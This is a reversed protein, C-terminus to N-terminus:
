AKVGCLIEYAITGAIRAHDDATVGDGLLVVEDGVRVGEVETVDVTTLNMSVRGVIATRRDGVMVWGGACEDTGALERRLGDAYGVPLLAVRMPRKATFTANYGIAEGEAVERVDLVRTKWTMVPRLRGRIKSGAGVPELAYGYLAIGSRVMARAGASTALGELWAADAGVDVSSSSGAHVWRPAFGRSGPHGVDRLSTPHFRRVQDIGAEFQRKQDRTRESGAVEASSFHTCVGDLELGADATAKLVAALEAGPRAGQRNMGTEIEVHVRVGTGRLWGVQEVTWVVPTLGHEAIATVEGPMVGCMALIDVAERGIGAAELAHRARMGEAADAVGLWRTGARALAAACQELGHGYANAKVVGLVEAGAAERVVSYNAALRAEDIEVWSRRM